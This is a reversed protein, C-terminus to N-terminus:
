FAIGKGQFYAEYIAQAWEPHNLEEYVSKHAKWINEVSAGEVTTGLQTLRDKLRQFINAGAGIDISPGGVNRHSLPTLPVAIIREPDLGMRQAFVKHLLHHAELGKSTGSLGAANIAARLEAYEYYSAAKSAAARFEEVTRVTSSNLFKYGQTSLFKAIKVTAYTLGAAGLVLSVKDQIISAAELGFILQGLEEDTSGSLTYAARTAKATSHLYHASLQGILAGTLQISVLSEHGSPDINNVPDAHAYLYKHLSLPDTQYGEFSDATWFRGTNPNMERQRLHILGLDPDYYEGAYRFWNTTNGTQALLIGFADYTYTDTVAGATDTLLRVSGHGDPVYFRTPGNPERVSLRALGLGYRRLTFSPGPTIEELVQAYGTPNRDDVLYYTTTTTGGDTVSKRVRHGDGDYVLEITKGAVTRKVLRNFVDYEDAATQPPAPSVDGWLTNGNTDFNTTAPELRDRVDYSATAEGIPGLSGTRALRNGVRDYVYGLQGTPGDGQAVETTLRQLRDYSWGNTRWAGNVQEILSTRQGSPGLGYTFHAVTEAGRQV